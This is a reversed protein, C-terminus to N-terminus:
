TERRGGDLGMWRAGPRNSQTRPTRHSAQPKGNQLNRVPAQLLGQLEEEDVALGGERRMRRGRRCRHRRLLLRHPLCVPGELTKIQSSRTEPTIDISHSQCTRGAELRPVPRRHTAPARPPPPRGHGAARSAPSERRHRGWTRTLLAGQSVEAIRHPPSANEHSLIFRAANKRKCARNSRSLYVDETEYCVQGM